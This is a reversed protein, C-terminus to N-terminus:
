GNVEASQTSKQSTDDVAAIKPIKTAQADVTAPAALPTAATAARTALLSTAAQPSGGQAKCVASASAIMSVDGSKLGAAQCVDMSSLIMQTSLSSSVSGDSGTHFMTVIEPIMMLPFALNAAAGLKDAMGQKTPIAAQAEETRTEGERAEVSKAAAGPKSEGAKAESAKSEGAKAEKAKAEKTKLKNAISHAKQAVKQIQGVDFKPLARKNHPVQAQEPVYSKIRNLSLSQVLFIDAIIFTFLAHVTKM